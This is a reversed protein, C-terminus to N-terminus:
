KKENFNWQFFSLFKKSKKQIKKKSFREHKRPIRENTKESIKPCTLTGSICFLSLARNKSLIGYKTMEPPLTPLFWHKSKENSIEVNTKAIIQALKSTKIHKLNIKKENTRSFGSFGKKPELPYHLYTLNKLFWYRTFRRDSKASKQVCTINVWDRFPSHFINQDCKKIKLPYHLNQWKLPYHVNQNKM